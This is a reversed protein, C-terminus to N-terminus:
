LVLAALQRIDLKNLNSISSLCSMVLRLSACFEYFLELLHWYAMLYRDWKASSAEPLLQRREAEAYLRAVLHVKGSGSLGAFIELLLSGAVSISRELMELLIQAAGEYDKNKLFAGVIMQLIDVTPYFGRKKMHQFIQFARESNQRKCHGIILTTKLKVASSILDHSCYGSILSNYSAVTPACGKNEMDMFMEAAKELKGLKCFASIIMNLTYVNPSIRCKCMEKYFALVIDARDLDLLSSMYANCSEIVPLFGFERMRCFTDTANRFKKMHAYTKFLSDFVRPSSDCLRYSYVLADFIESPNKKPILNRKLLSEATKFRKGKTLIHLIIAHIGLTSLNPKQREVWDFFELSLVPDRQIKLLIHKIRFPSLGSSLTNLKAWDTHVLHSHAVNIFDLDQGKPDTLTCHPLPLHGTKGRRLLNSPTSVPATSMVGALESFNRVLVSSETGIHPTILSSHLENGQVLLWCFFTRKGRKLVNHGMLLGFAM